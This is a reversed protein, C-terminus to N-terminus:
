AEGIDVSGIVSMLSLRKYNGGYMHYWFTFCIEELSAPAKVSMRYNTTQDHHDSSAYAYHGAENMNTHDYHPGPVSHAEGVKWDGTSGPPNMTWPCTEEFSCSIDPIAAFILILLYTGNYWTGLILFSGGPPPDPQPTPPQDCGGTYVSVDDIAIFGDPGGGSTALFSIRHNTIEIDSYEVRAPYWHPSSGPEATKILLDKQGEGFDIIKTVTLRGPHQGFINYWLSICSRFTPRLYPSSLMAFADASINEMTFDVYAFTQGRDVSYPPGAIVDPHSTRGSGVLWVLPASPSNQYGCVGVDFSCSTLSPCPSPELQLDDIAFVSDKVDGEAEFVEAQLIIQFKENETIEVQHYGWEYQNHFGDFLALLKTSNTDEKYNIVDLVMDSEGRYMAWLSLCQTGFNKGFTKSIIKAKGEPKNDSTVHVALFHGSGSTTSHDTYPFNTNNSEYGEKGTMLQWYGDGESSETVNKWNCINGMEFQCDHSVKCAGKTLQLEDLSFDGYPGTVLLQLVLRWNYERSKITVSQKHWEDVKSSNFLDFIGEFGESAVNYSNMIEMTIIFFSPSYGFNHYYFSLCYDNQYPAAFSSNLFWFAKGYKLSDVFLFNNNVGSEPGSNAETPRGATIELQGEGNLFEEQWACYQCYGDDFSCSIDEVASDAPDASEPQLSCSSTFDLFIDDVSISGKTGEKVSGQLIIQFDREQGPVAVSGDLWEGESDRRVEWVTRERDSSKVLLSLTEEGIIRYRFKVCLGDTEPSQFPTLVQSELRATTFMKSTDTVAADDIFLYIGDNRVVRVWDAEEDKLNTWFCFDYTFGCNNSSCKGPLIKVDDLGITANANGARLEFVVAFDTQAKVIEAEGLKWIGYNMTDYLRFSTAQHYNDDGQLLFMVSLLTGGLNPSQVDTMWYFSVCYQESDEDFRSYFPSQLVATQQKMDTSIVAAMYHGRETNMTHDKAGGKVTWSFDGGNSYGCTNDSLEFTCLQWPHDQDEYCPGTM